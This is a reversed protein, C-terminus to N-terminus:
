TRRHTVTHKLALARRSPQRVAERVSRMGGLAAGGCVRGLVATTAQPTHQRAHSSDLGAIHAQSLLGMRRQAVARELRLWWGGGGVVGVERGRLGGLGGCRFGLGVVFVGGM